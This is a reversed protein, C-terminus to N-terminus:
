KSKDLMHKIANKIEDDSCDACTGKAPMANFGKIAHELLGELKREALRSGWAAADGMKPAGMLGSGHCLSCKATYVQEGTRPGSAAAVVAAACPQGEMCTAGVPKLREAVSEEAVLGSSFVGTLLGATALTIVFRTVTV